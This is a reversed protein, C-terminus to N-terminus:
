SSFRYEERSLQEYSEKRIDREILEKKWWSSRHWYECSTCRCGNRSKRKIRQTMQNRWHRKTWNM